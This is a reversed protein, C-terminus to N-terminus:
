GGMVPNMKTAGRVQIRRQLFPEGEPAFPILAEEARLLQSPHHGHQPQWQPTPQELWAEIPAHHAAATNTTITIDTPSSTHEPSTTAATSPSLDPRQWGLAQILSDACAPWTYDRLLTERLQHAKRQYEAPDRAIQILADALSKKDRESFFPHQLEGQVDLAHVLHLLDKGKLLHYVGSKQSLVLPVGAAIAEWAVLGFGEHWSPVMCVSSQRLEAFLAPRDQTFPLAKINIVRGAQTHAFAQLEQEANAYNPGPQDELAIGRLTIKPESAGQLLAPLGPDNDCRHVAHAFGAVGLHAQKIKQAGADLRGSIFATFQHRHQQPKIEALGPILMPVDAIAADLLNALARRLLPGVALRVNASQFLATQAQTKGEATASNEAFAEYHDYSMHHILASRGGYNPVMANAIAGTIRDHGLWVTQLPDIDPLKAFLKERVLATHEAGLQGSPLVLNVLEVQFQNKASAIDSEDCDPVVCVVRLWQWHAAAVAQLLDTNLANIGGFKSGWATAFAILSHTKKM